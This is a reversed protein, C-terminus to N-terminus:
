RRLLGFDSGIEQLRAQFRAADPELERGASETERAETALRVHRWERGQREVEARTANQM